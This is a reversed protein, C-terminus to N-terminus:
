QVQAPLSVGASPDKNSRNKGRAALLSGGANNPQVPNVTPFDTSSTSGTVYANGASDIAVGSAYDDSSGGLYTSYSLAPDIVLPRTPDYGATHFAAQNNGAVVFTGDLEAKDVSMSRLPRDYVTAVDPQYIAPKRFRVEDDGVRLVLDGSAADVRMGDAGAFSLKIQNPDAGPAVVFDYELQRQNGYYVLDVGPYVGEYKVRAYDPVNTRWKKPDNGLFYNSRGPLEELGIIRGKANCGVLRMRVVQSLPSELGAVGGKAGNPDPVMQSLDPLLSRWLSEIGDGISPWHGTRPDIPGFMRERGPPRFKGFRGTGPSSKRLTLVAENDTLFITYGGGRALFRVRSDTQGQNAEFSLPLTGYSAVLKPQIKTHTASVQHAPLTNEAAQTRQLLGFGM